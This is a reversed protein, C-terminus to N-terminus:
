LYGGVAGSRELCSSTRAAAALSVGLFYGMARQAMQRRIVDRYPLKGM